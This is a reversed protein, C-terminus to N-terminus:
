VEDNEFFWSFQKLSIINEGRLENESELAILAKLKGWDEETQTMQEFQKSTVFYVQAGGKILTNLSSDIKEEAVPKVPVKSTLEYERLGLELNYNFSDSPVTYIEGGMDQQIFTNREMCIIVTLVGNFYGVNTWSDTVDKITFFAALTKDPTAFIVPGENPDRVKEARPEFEKIGVNRTGVFLIPPKERTEKNIITEM